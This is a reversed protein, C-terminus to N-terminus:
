KIRWYTCDGKTRVAKIYGDVLTLVIWAKHYGREKTIRPKELAKGAFVITGTRPSVCTVYFDEKLDITSATLM